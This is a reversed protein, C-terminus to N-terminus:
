LWASLRGIRRGTEEAHVVRGQRLAERLLGHTPRALDALRVILIRDRVEPDTQHRFAHDLREAGEAPLGIV